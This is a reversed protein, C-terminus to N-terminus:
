YFRGCQQPGTGTFRRSTVPGKARRRDSDTERHRKVTMKFAGWYLSQNSM